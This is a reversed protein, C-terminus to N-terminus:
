DVAKLRFFQAVGLRATEFCGQVKQANVVKLLSKGGSKMTEHHKM